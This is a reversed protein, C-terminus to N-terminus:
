SAIAGRDRRFVADGLHRPRIGRCAYGEDGIDPVDRFTFCKHRFQLMVPGVQFVQNLLAGAIQFGLNGLSGRHLRRQLAACRVEDLGFADGMQATPLDIQCGVFKPHGVLHPLM